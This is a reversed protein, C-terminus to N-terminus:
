VRMRDMLIAGAVSVNLSDFKHSMKISIVEDLKSIIRSSLGEGENGLILARKQKLKIDRIDVGGM